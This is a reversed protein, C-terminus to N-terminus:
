KAYTYIKKGSQLIIEKFENDIKNMNVIDISYLTNINDIELKAKKVLNENCTTDIALDIDSHQQATKKSRSGFLYLTFNDLHKKLIDIVFQIIEEVRRNDM